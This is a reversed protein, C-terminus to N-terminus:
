SQTKQWNRSLMRIIEDDQLLQAPPDLIPKVQMVNGDIDLTTGSRECWIRCPLVVDAREVLDCLYSAQVVLSELEYISSLNPGQPEEDSLVVYAARVGLPLLNPPLPTAKSGLIRLAGVLNGGIAPLLIPISKDEREDDRKGLSAALSVVSELLKVDFGVGRGVVTVVKAADKLKAELWSLAPLSPSSIRSIKVLARGSLDQSGQRIASALEGIAQILVALGTKVPRIQIHARPSLVNDRGGVTVLFAGKNLARRINSAVMPLPEDSDLGVAIVADADQLDSVKCNFVGVGKEQLSRTFQWIAVVEGPELLFIRQTDLTEALRSLAEFTENTCRPSAVLAVGDKGYKRRADQLLKSAQILAEPLSVAVRGGDRRIYPRLIRPHSRMLLDFRGKKCLQGGFRSALGAGRIAVINNDRLHIMLDCAMPCEPCTTKSVELYEQRGTYRSLKSFIAGTPCVDICAGCQICNSSGLPLVGPENIVTRIGRNAFDLTNNGVIEACMRVCRGCLICRNNDIAIFESTVDVEFRPFIPQMTVHDIGFEYCLSQLECAGSKECFFCFHNREALLLELILRRYRWLKENSTSIKMGESVPTTCAPVPRKQGEVDVICLRCGGYPSLGDLHCLTPVYIGNEECAQLITTDRSTKVQRGDINLTVQEM